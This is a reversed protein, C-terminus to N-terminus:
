NGDENICQLTENGILSQDENEYGNGHADKFQLRSKSSDFHPVHMSGSDM